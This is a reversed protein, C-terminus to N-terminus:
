LPNRRQLKMTLWHGHIDIESQHNRIASIEINFYDISTDLSDIKLCNLNEQTVNQKAVKKKLGV